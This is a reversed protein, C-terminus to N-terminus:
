ESVGAYDRIQEARKAPQAARWLGPGDSLPIEGTEMLQKFRRLDERIQQEPEEGFMMAIVRGFRGAPPMYEMQVRVETGRAGPAPAFRVSGSHEVQSGPLSRWALWESEQDQVIEADWHVSMGAPAKATWRSRRDDLVEVSKVHRMFHPFNEFDRWFRYVEDISRNITVVQEVRVGVGTRAESQRRGLRQAAFVDLATVGAVAAAAMGLRGGEATDQTMERGLWALDLADGGVRSWLWRARDPQALIAVGAAIERAGFARLTNRTSETDDAGILRAVRSPAAAEALGLAISFWGLALALPETSNLTSANYAM